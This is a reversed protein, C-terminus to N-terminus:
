SLPGRFFRCGRALYPDIHSRYAIGARTDETLQYFAGLNYGWSWSDGKFTVFGDNQQPAMGAASLAAFIAGFDIANSLEAKIYQVNIGAGLSLKDTMRWAIAPNINLSILDSKVAHYRGVWTPHYETSLGFPSSVGLGVHLRDNLQRNYYLNPVALTSGANGGGGGSLPQGTLDTSGQNRFRASPFVVHTGVIM